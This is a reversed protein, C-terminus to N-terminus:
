HAAAMKAVISYAARPWAHGVSSSVSNTCSHQPRSSSTRGGSSCGRRVSLLVLKVKQFFFDLEMIQKIKGHNKKNNNNKKNAGLIFHSVTKLYM